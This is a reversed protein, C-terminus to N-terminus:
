RRTSAGSSTIKEDAYKSAKNDMYFLRVDCTESNKANDSRCYYSVHQPKSKPFQILLGDDFEFYNEDKKKKMELAVAKLDQKVNKNLSDGQRLKLVSEKASIEYRGDYKVPTWESVLKGAALDEHNM